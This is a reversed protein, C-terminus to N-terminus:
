YELGIICAWENVTDLECDEAGPHLHIWKQRESDWHCVFTGVNNTGLYFGSKSPSAISSNYYTIPIQSNTQMFKIMWKKIEAEQKAQHLKDAM